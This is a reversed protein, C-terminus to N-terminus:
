LGIGGQHAIKGERNRVRRFHFDDDLGGIVAMVVASNCIGRHQPGSLCYVQLASDSHAKVTKKAKEGQGGGQQGGGDPQSAPLLGAPLNIVPEADQRQCKGQMASIGKEM